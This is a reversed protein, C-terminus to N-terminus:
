VDAATALWGENSLAQRLQRAAAILDRKKGSRDANLLLERAFTWRPLSRLEIPLEKDILRITESVTRVTPRLRKGRTQIHEPLPVPESREAM